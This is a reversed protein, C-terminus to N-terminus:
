QIKGIGIIKTIYASSLTIYIENRNTDRLCGENYTGLALEDKNNSKTSDSAIAYKTYIVIHKGSGSSPSYSIFLLKEYNDWNDSLEIIGVTGFLGDFLVFEDSVYNSLNEIQETNNQIANKNTNTLGLMEITKDWVTKVAKASGFKSSSGDTTSDTITYNPVNPLGVQIKTVIHPNSTSNKHITLADWVTKIAKATALIVSSNTTVSDTKEKNFGTKKTIKPEKEDVSKITDTIKKLLNGLDNYIMDIAKKFGEENILKGM